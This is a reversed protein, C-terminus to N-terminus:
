ANRTENVQKKVAREKKDEKASIAQYREIMRIGEEKDVDIIEGVKQTFTLGGRSVLLKVKM